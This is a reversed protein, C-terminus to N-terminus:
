MHKCTNAFARAREDEERVNKKKKQSAHMRGQFIANVFHVLIM